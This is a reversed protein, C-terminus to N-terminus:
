RPHESVSWPGAASSWPTLNHELGIKMRRNSQFDDEFPAEHSAISQPCHRLCAEVTTAPGLRGSGVLRAELDGPVETSTLDLQAVVPM